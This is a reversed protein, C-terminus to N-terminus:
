IAHECFKVAVQQSFRTSKGGKVERRRWPKLSAIGGRVCAAYAAVAACHRSLLQVADTRSCITDTTYRSLNDPCPVLEVVGQFGLPAHTRSGKRTRIEYLNVKKSNELCSQEVEEEDGPLRIKSM